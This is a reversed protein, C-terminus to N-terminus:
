VVGKKPYRYISLAWPGWLIVKAYGNRESFLLPHERTDKVKIYTDGFRVGFLKHARRLYFLPM